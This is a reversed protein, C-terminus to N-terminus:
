SALFNTQMEGEVGVPNHGIGRSTAIDMRIDDDDDDDDASCSNLGFSQLKDRNNTNTPQQNYEEDDDNFREVVVTPM